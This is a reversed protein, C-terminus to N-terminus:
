CRILQMRSSEAIIQLFGVRQKHTAEARKKHTEERLIAESQELRKAYAEEAKQADAVDPNNNITIPHAQSWRPAIPMSWASFTPRFKKHFPYDFHDVDFIFIAHRVFHHDVVLLLVLYPRRIARVRKAPGITPLDSALGLAKAVNLFNPRVHARQAEALSHLVAPLVHQGTDKLRRHNIFMFLRLQAVISTFAFLV